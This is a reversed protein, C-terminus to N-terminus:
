SANIFKFAFQLLRYKYFDCHVGHLKFYIFIYCANFKWKTSYFVLAKDGSLAVRRYQLFYKRSSLYIIIVIFLYIQGENITSWKLVKLNEPLHNKGKLKIKLITTKFTFIEKWNHLLLCLFKMHIVFENIQM